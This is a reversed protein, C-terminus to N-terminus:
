EDFTVTINTPLVKQSPLVEFRILGVQEKARANHWFLEGTNGCYLSQRRQLERIDIKKAEDTTIKRNCYGSM